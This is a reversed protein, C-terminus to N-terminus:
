GELLEAGATTGSVVEVRQFAGAAGTAVEQAHAEDRCLGIIASGSGTMIAGLAGSDSMARKLVKLSPMLDFAAIELDNALNGAIAEVDGAALATILAAASGAPRGNGSPRGGTPVMEDYHQYVKPTSLAGESIGLVWWLTAPSELPSLVDGVGTALAVGGKLCFPVDAGLRRALVDVDLSGACEPGELRTLGVLAAAADASAGGLGAGVPIRKEVTISPREACKLRAAAVTRQVIDPAAPIPGDLGDAWKIAVESHEAPEITLTDGLSISQMVSELEHYGDPRRGVVALWLNVKARGITKIM